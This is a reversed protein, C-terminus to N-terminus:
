RANLIMDASVQARCNILVILSQLNLRLHSQGQEVSTPRIRFQPLSSGCYLVKLADDPHIWVKGGGVEFKRFGVCLDPFLLSGDSGIIAHFSQIGFICQRVEATSYRPATEADM